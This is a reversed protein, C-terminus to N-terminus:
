EWHIGTEKLIFSKGKKIAHYYFNDYPMKALEAWEAVTKYKGNSEIRHNNKRNRQQEKPTAFRCNAPSYGDDCDIRDITLNPNNDEWGNVIAWKKFLIYNNWEDCVKIGKGAYSKYRHSYINKPNCRKLMGRWINHLRKVQGVRADGHAIQSHAVKSNHGHVFRKRLTPIEGCGCLCTIM